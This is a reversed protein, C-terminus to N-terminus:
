FNWSFSALAAHTYIEDVRLVASGIRWEHGLSGLFKYGVDLAANACVHYRVGGGAQFAFSLDTDDDRVGPGPLPGGGGVTADITTVAGGAGTNLYVSWGPGFRHQYVVNALIPYQYLADHVPSDRRNVPNWIVGTEFEASWSETLNYGFAVDGRVGDGYLGFLGGSALIAPGADVHLYTQDLWETGHALAPGALLIFGM